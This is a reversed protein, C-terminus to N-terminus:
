AEPAPTPTAMPRPTPTPTPVPRPSLSMNPTNKPAESPNTELVQLQHIRWRENEDVRFRVLYRTNVWEALPYTADEPADEPIAEPLIKGNMSVMRETVTVTASETWPLVSIGSVEVRYDYATVDYDEYENDYLMADKEICNESFYESLELLSGEQLICEARLQLGDTALIYLNSMRMATLFVGYCLAVFAVALFVTRMFYWVGRKAMRVGTMPKKEM